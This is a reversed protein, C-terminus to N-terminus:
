ETVKFLGAAGAAAVPDADAKGGGPGVWFPMRGCGGELFFAGSGKGAGHPFLRGLFKGGAWAAMLELLGEFLPELFCALLDDM